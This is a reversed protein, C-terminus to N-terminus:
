QNTFVGINRKFEKILTTNMLVRMRDSRKMESASEIKLM